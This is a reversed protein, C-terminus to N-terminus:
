ARWGFAVPPRPKRVDLAAHTANWRTTAQCCSVPLARAAAALCCRRPSTRLHPLQRRASASQRRRSRSSRRRPAHTRHLPMRRRVGAGAAAMHSGCPPADPRRSREQAVSVATHLDSVRRGLSTPHPFPHRASSGTLRMSGYRAASVADRRRTRRVSCPPEAGVLSCLPDEPRALPPYM